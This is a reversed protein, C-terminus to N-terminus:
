GWRWEDFILLHGCRAKFILENRRVPYGEKHAMVSANTFHYAEALPTYVTEYGLARAAFCFEIDEFVGLGYVENMAGTTAKDGAERYNKTVENWVKRRTMICAGTVGQMVRRENVKPHDASWGINAHVVQGHISIALGAHQIKGAPRRPDPSDEPFLLKPGVVGVKPDDFEAVMAQLCGPRLEVDSNLLLILPANCAAVGENVSRPFGWNEKHRILRSHGNLSHYIGNLEDQEPGADDILVLRVKLEEKTMEISNLCKQLLAAQGYVPIIIDLDYQIVPQRKRKAM